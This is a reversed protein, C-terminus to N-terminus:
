SELPVVDKPSRITYDLQIERKEGPALTVDWELVGPQDAVDRWGGTTREGRKVEIREDQSVPVRDRVVVRVPHDRRNELQTRYARALQDERGGFGERSRQEPTATRQVVVRDDSGFPLEIEAGPASEAHHVEGLYTAGSFVRVPGALMPYDKSALGRAVLYATPAVSPVTRYGLTVPLLGSRLRVRHERADAPIASRGPVAFVTAYATRLVDAKTVTAGFGGAAGGYSNTTNQYYASPEAVGDRLITTTTYDRGAIPLESLEAGSIATRQNAHDSVHPRVISAALVPPALGRAPSTTSLRLEVDEWDEGTKQVVVGETVLAVESKEADLTARYSPTWNAGPMVYTLELALTGAARAELTVAVRRAQVGPKPRAADRRARALTLKEALDRTQAARALARKGLEDLQARLFAWSQQIAQPDPRSPPAGPASAAPAARLARLFELAEADATEEQAIARQQDELARVEKEAAALEPSAAAERVETGVEIAGIAAAVGRAEVRVSDTELSMPLGAFVVESAGQALRVEGARIVEARGPYVTVRVITSPVEVPGAARAVSVCLVLAVVSALPLACPLRM